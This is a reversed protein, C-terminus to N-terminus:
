LYSLEGCFFSLTENKGEPKILIEGAEGIGSLVGSIKRGSGAAGEFFVVKENMKFLRIELANKWYDNNKMIELENYLRALIMELLCFRESQAINRNVALAISAAKQKLSSPFKKQAFNIGIGAHVIGGDAECLIGSTKKSDLMVDNPWKVKVRSELEPAFDTVALAVSLGARLTLVMPIEEIRPYRLLITFPLNLDREMQWTRGQVRGRGKEQFGAAIVTGHPENKEALLRSIEMTSTVTDEYYVPANFPNKIELNKM